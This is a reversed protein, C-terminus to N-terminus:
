SEAGSEPSASPLEPELPEPSERNRWFTDCSSLKPPPFDPVDFFHDVPLILTEGSASVAALAGVIATYPVGLAVASFKNPAAGYCRWPRAAKRLWWGTGSYPQRATHNAVCGSLPCLVSFALCAAALKPLSGRRPKTRDGVMVVHVVQSPVTSDVV